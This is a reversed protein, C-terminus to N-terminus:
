VDIKNDYNLNFTLYQVTIKYFENALTWSPSLSRVHKIFHGALEHIISQSCYDLVLLYNATLM